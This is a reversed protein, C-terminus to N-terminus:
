EQRTISNIIEKYDGNKVKNYDIRYLSINNEVCYENKIKDREQGDKFLEDAKNWSIGNFRIPKEHQEGDVEIIANYKPLYFDYFLRGHGKYNTIKYQNVFEINNMTLYDYVTKELNSMSHQCVNCRTKGNNLTELPMKFERGCECIFIIPEGSHYEKNKQSVRLPINNRKLYLDLNNFTYKNHLNFKEVGHKKKGASYFKLRGIYGEKDQVYYPMHTGHPENELLKYGYKQYGNRIYDIDKQKSKKLKIACNQCCHYPNFSIFVKWYQNFNKHCYGCCFLIHEVDLKNPLSVISTGNHVNLDMYHKINDLRYKNKVDYRGNSMNLNKRHTLNELKISYSYGEKDIFHNDKEMGKYENLMILGFKEYIPKIDNNNKLEM